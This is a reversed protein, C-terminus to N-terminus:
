YQTIYVSWRTVYVFVVLLKDVFKSSYKCLKFYIVTVDNNCSIQIYVQGFEMFFWNKAIIEIYDGAM